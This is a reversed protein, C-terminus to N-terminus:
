KLEDMLEEYFEDITLVDNRIKDIRQALKTIQPPELFTRRLVEPRTFIEKPIGKLVIRGNLMVAIRTSTEAVLEMDHSIVILTHKKALKKILNLIMKRGRHDQGTTPEDFIIVEPEMALISSTAVLKRQNLNLDSPHVKRHKWLGLQKLVKKVRKEVERETLGLNKPGFEVEKFVSSCFNQDDPNQFILGVIKSLQAVTKIKTADGKVFVKGKTPKLLGNFHKVLTTKGSGNQGIISVTEGEFIKLNIGRLAMVGSPYKFWVGKAEIIPEM